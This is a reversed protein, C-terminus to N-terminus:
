IPTGSRNGRNKGLMQGFTREDAAWQRDHSAVALSSRDDQIKVGCTQPAYAVFHATRKRWLWERIAVAVESEEFMM